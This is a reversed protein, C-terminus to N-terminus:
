RNRRSEAWVSVSDSHLHWNRSSFPVFFLSIGGDRTTCHIDNTLRKVNIERLHWLKQVICMYVYTENLLLLLISPFTLFLIAPRDTTGDFIDSDHYEVYRTSDSHVRKCKPRKGVVKSLKRCPIDQRVRTLRLAADTNALVALPRETTGLCVDRRKPLRDASCLCASRNVSQQRYLFTQCHVSGHRLGYGNRRRVFIYYAYIWRWLRYM